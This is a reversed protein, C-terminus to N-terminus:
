LTPQSKLALCELHIGDWLPSECTESSIHFDTFSTSHMVDELEPRRLACLPVQSKRQDMRRKLPPPLLPYAVRGATRRLVIRLPLQGVSLADFFLKGGPKLWRCFSECIAATVPCGHGFMGLSYIFDFTDPPFVADFINTCVLEVRPINISEALVPNEAAALMEPSVDLGVLRQVNDLCHFYRGTGCGADLVAVPMPFSQCISRLIIWLRRHNSSRVEIEDDRRYRPVIARYATKLHEGVVNLDMPRLWERCAGWICSPVNGFLGM